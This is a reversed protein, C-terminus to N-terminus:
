PPNQIPNCDKNNCGLILWQLANKTNKEAFRYLKEWVPFFGLFSYFLVRLQWNFSYPWIFSYPPNKNFVKTQRQTQKKRWTEQTGFLRTYEDIQCGLTCCLVGGNWYVQYLEAFQILHCIEELFRLLSVLCQVSSWSHSLLREATAYVM